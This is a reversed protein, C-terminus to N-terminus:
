GRFAQAGDVSASLKPGYFPFKTVSRYGMNEYVPRGDNTAHLVTRELGTAEKADKLSTRIVLEALGSRRQAKSTAVWAVYLASDIPLVFAASAPEGGVYAIRGFLQGRWLAASSLAQRGWDRPASYADANLDAIAFRTEEDEIRRLQADAMPRTPPSLREAVMGTLHLKYELGIRSLISGSESGFWEESATLVWPNKHPEFHELAQQARHGLDSDDAIPKNLMGVNLFFWPQKANAVSLGNREFAEGDPSVQAYLKWVERLHLNSEQIERQKM